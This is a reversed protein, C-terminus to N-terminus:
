HGVNSLLLDLAQDIENKTSNKGVSFRFTGSAYAKDMLTARLINSLHVEESHCAAGISIALKEKLQHMVQYANTNKFSVNLTNPLNSATHGNILYDLNKEKLQKLLYEKVKKMQLINKDFDRVALEAAKGLGVIQMVNETGPRMNFEHKAGHLIKQLSVGERIYLAGIGKPGYFKHGALSLLDVQLENVNIAIKGVSQCADTHFTIGHEKALKGIEKIPQVSGTENNAHMISILVTKSTISEKLEEIKLRGSTDVNIYSTEFGIKELYKYVEIVAPHEVTSTIIHNGLHKKKLATGIIAYNNSETGGSTFIIENSKAGLLKAMQNRSKEIAKKNIEGLLHVSSPNGYFDTLYPLMANSVETDIPTSANYDLYIFSTNM